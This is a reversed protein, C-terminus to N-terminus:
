RLQISVVKESAVPKGNLMAPMYLWERAAQLVLRDYLPHSPQQMSATIVKGDPGIAVRVAATPSGLGAMGSPVPPITQRIAVPQSVETSAGAAPTSEAVASAAGPEPAKPETATSGISKAEAAKAEAAKAEAAKTEAAKAAARAAETAQALDIFGSALTRLVEADSTEKFGPTETLTLVLDFKELSQEHEGSRFQDRGENFTKRALSPVLKKKAEAVLTLFRPPVDELSPEFLPTTSVLQEVADKADQARGLALLCLARYQQAEPAQVTALATLADDYAASDYLAKAKELTGQASVPSAGALAVVLCRILLSRHALSLNM